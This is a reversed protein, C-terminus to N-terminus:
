AAVASSLRGGSQADLGHAHKAYSHIENAVRWADRRSKPGVIHSWGLQSLVSMLVERCERYRSMAISVQAEEDGAAALACYYATQVMSGNAPEVPLAPVLDAPILMSANLIALPLDSSTM